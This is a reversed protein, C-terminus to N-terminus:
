IDKDTLKQSQSEMINQLRKLEQFIFRGMLMSSLESLRFAATNIRHIALELMSNSTEPHAEQEREANALHHQAASLLGKAVNLETEFERLDQLINMSM